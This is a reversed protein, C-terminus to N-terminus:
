KAESRLGFWPLHDAVKINDLWMHLLNHTVFIATFLSVFVGLALTVAFGKVISAGFASGFWFLIGCTILTSLNSDRISPWARNWAKEIANQLRLGEKLEEKLREFILINADVAVGISLVFGAIGPLTLTVPVLKFLAFTLSVYLILAVDALLGPLRYYGAMFVVVLGFGILGAVLSKSLSDAGLTPGIIRTEVIKLPIPLSGYRLQIAFANAEDLTFSGSITGQGGIIADNIIPSSIVQKDLLITLSKGINAPTHDAFIQAGDSKLTFNIMYSTALTDQSVVVSELDAGTMITRYVITEPDSPTITEGTPSYDTVLITGPEPSFDGTDVFELLGTQQITALVSETDALGPFEGVIRRDGAIQIINENVGLADTRQQVIDRAIEMSESDIQQDAPIDAELLVQLGGQLDLGLRPELNRSLLPDDTVPNLIEIARQGSAILARLEENVERTTKGHADVTTRGTAAPKVSADM